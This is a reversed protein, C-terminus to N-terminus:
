KQPNIKKGRKWTIYMFLIFLAFVAFISLIFPLNYGSKETVKYIEATERELVIHYNGNQDVRVLDTGLLSRLEKDKEIKEEPIVARQDASTNNIAVVVIEADHQRKFVTMGNNEYLLEMTGSMLAKQHSRVRGLNSIYDIIEKDTRFNMMPTNEPSNGGNVAIETAYYVVPIEPQTYLYTLALKWRTVPYTNNNVMERTFRDTNQNDFFATRLWHTTKQEFLDFLPGSSVDPKSFANRLPEVLSVDSISTFGAQSYKDVEDNSLNPAEGTLYFDDKLKIIDSTVAQWFEIPKNNIDTLKFGDINTEEIWWKVINIIEQGEMEKKIPLELIIRMDKKHIHDVLEKFENLTGFHKDTKYYDKIWQGHYGGVENEFIPSLQIATFGMEQLYDLRDRIGKFDGGQFQLPDQMNVDYDNHNDGNNFRDVM